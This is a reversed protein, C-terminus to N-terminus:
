AATAMDAVKYIHILIMVFTDGCLLKTWLRSTTWPPFRVLDNTRWQGCACSSLIEKRAGERRVRWVFAVEEFYSYIFMLYLPLVCFMLLSHCSLNKSLSNASSFFLLSLMLSGTLLFPFSNAPSLLFTLTKMTKKTVTKVSFTSKLWTALKFFM